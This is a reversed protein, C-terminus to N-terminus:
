PSARDGSTAHGIRKWNELVRQQSGELMPFLSSGLAIEIEWLIAGHTPDLVGEVLMGFRDVLFSPAEPWTHAAFINRQKVLM